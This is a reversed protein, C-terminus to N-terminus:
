LTLPKQTDILKMLKMINVTDVLEKLSMIIYLFHDEFRELRVAILM